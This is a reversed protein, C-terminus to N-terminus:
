KEEQNKIKERIYRIYETGYKSFSSKYVGNDNLIKLLWFPYANVVKIEMIWKDEDLILEGYDDSDLRVNERRARINKDFTIRLDIDDNGFLAVRDYALFVKPKTKYHNMFFELENVVQENMFKKIAPKKYTETFEYADKLKIVTRRKNVVGDYKKKIELFVKTDMEARGYSRLRLKEKYVPKEISKRILEDSDTDYYINCITYYGGDKSFGDEYVFPELQKRINKYTDNNIIFKHEVRSFVEISSM